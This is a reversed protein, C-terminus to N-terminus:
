VWIYNKYHKPYHKKIYKKLEKEDTFFVKEKISKLVYWDSYKSYIFIQERCHGIFSLQYEEYTPETLRFKFRIFPYEEELIKGM